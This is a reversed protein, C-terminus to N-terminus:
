RSGRSKMVAGDGIQEVEGVSITRNVFFIEFDEALPFSRTEVIEALQMKGNSAFRFLDDDFNSLPCLRSSCSVASAIRM